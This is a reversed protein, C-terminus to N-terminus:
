MLGFYLKKGNNSFEPTQTERITLGKTVGTTNRDVRVRASDMGVRYYYLKYFKQLAKTSSDREAIFALQTGAEDFVFNKAENFGRFVTDTKGNTLSYWLVSAKKLTDTNSRTTEIIFTNGPKSFYYNSVLPFKKEEGTHLNRLVLETGEEAPDGPKPKNEKKATKLANLGKTKAENAKNRLSDAVRALSDAMRLLGNLQSLSDPAAVAPPMPLAKERLYALWQGTGEDPTKFSRVRPIRLVSDKGLEVIALTDKPMEDPKKKKIKAERTASFLPKIKFIVFRSDETITASYGRPIEQKYTNATSQIVLTADGEQPTVTFVVWKGNRSINRENISQWSDYVAHTILKKQAAAHLCALLLVPICLFKRM